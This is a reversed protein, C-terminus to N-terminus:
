DATSLTAEISSCNLLNFSFISNVTADKIFLIFHFCLPIHLNVSTLKCKSDRTPLNSPFFKGFSSDIIKIGTFIDVDGM